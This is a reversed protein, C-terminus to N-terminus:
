KEKEEGFFMFNLIKRIETARERNDCEFILSVKHVDDEGVSQEVTQM